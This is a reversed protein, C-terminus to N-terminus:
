GPFRGEFAFQAVTRRESPQETDRIAQPLREAPGMKGVAIACVAQYQKPDVGCAAYAGDADFGAMAHCHLGLKNAQLTLSMWAAGTDFWAWHNDKGNHDFHRKCFALLLLPAAQAWVQNAQVLVDVFRQRDAESRAYVFRWPQENFCSPSWRAAEFLAVRQEDTVTDPLFARPSWRQIFMPDMKDSDSKRM